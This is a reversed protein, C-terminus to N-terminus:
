RQTGDRLVYGHTFLHQRWLALNVPKVAEDLNGAFTLYARFHLKYQEITSPSKTGALIATDFSLAQAGAAALSSTAIAPM